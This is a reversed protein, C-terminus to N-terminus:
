RTPVQDITMNKTDGGSKIYITGTRKTNGYNPLMGMNFSRVYWKGSFGPVSGYYQVNTNDVSAMLWVNSTSVSLATPSKTFIVYYGLTGPVYYPDGGPVIIDNAEQQIRITRTVVNRRKVYVTASRSSFKPNADVTLKFSSQSTRNVHIWSSTNYVTCDYDISYTYTAGAASPKETKADASVVKGSWLAVLVVTMIAVFPMLVKRAISSYCLKKQNMEKVELFIGGHAFFILPVSSKDRQYFLVNKPLIIVLLKIFSYYINM